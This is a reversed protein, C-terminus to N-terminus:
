RSEANVRDYADFLADPGQLTVTLLYARGKAKEIAAAMAAGAVYWLREGSSMEEIVQWHEPLLPLDVESKLYSM